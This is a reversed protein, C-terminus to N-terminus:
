LICRRQIKPALAECSTSCFQSLALLESAVSQFDVFRNQGETEGGFERRLISVGAEPTVTVTCNIGIDEGNQRRSPSNLRDQGLAPYSACDSRHLGIAGSFTRSVCITM